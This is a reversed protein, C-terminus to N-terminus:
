MSGALETLKLLTNLFLKLKIKCFFFVHQTPNLTHKSFCGLWKMQLPLSKNQQDDTKLERTPFTLM